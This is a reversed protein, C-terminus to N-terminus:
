GFNYGLIGVGCPARVETADVNGRQMMSLVSSLLGELLTVRNQLKQLETDYRKFRNDYTCDSNRLGETALGSEVRAQAANSSAQQASVNAM